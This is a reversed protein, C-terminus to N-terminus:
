PALLNGRHEPLLYEAFDVHRRYTERRTELHKRRVVVVLSRLISFRYPHPEELSSTFFDRTNGDNFRM